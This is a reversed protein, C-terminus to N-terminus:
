NDIFWFRSFYNIASNNVAQDSFHILYISNTVIDAITGANNTNYETHANANIKIARVQCYSDSAPVMTYSEDFLVNFRLQNGVTYMSTATTANLLDGIAFIAANPQKDMVVLVRQLLPTAAANGTIVFKLDIGDGKISQGTRNSNGDGTTLGNLLVFSATSTSAVANGIADTNHIETNIFRRLSNVDRMLQRGADGYIQLRGRKSIVQNRNVRRKRKVKGDSKHIRNKTNRAKNNM